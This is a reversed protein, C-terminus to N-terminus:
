TPDELIYRCIMDTLEDLVAEPAPDTHRHVLVETAAMDISQTILFAAALSDVGSRM